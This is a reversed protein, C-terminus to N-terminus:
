VSVSNRTELSVVISLTITKLLSLFNQSYFHKQLFKMIVLKTVNIFDARSMVKFYHNFCIKIANRYFWGYLKRLHLVYLEKMISVSSNTLLFCKLRNRESFFYFNCKIMLSIVGFLFYRSLDSVPPRVYAATKEERKSLRKPCAHVCEITQSVNSSFVEPQHDRFCDSLEIVVWRTVFTRFRHGASIIFNFFLIRVYFSLPQLSYVLFFRDDAFRSRDFTRWTTPLTLSISFTPRTDRTDTALWKEFTLVFVAIRSINIKVVIIITELPNPGQVYSHSSLPGINNSRGFM